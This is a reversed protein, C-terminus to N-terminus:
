DGLRKWSGRVHFGRLCIGDFGYGAAVAPHGIEGVLAVMQERNGARQGGPKGPRHVQSGLARGHQVLALQPTASGIGQGVGMEEVLQRLRTALVPITGMGVMTRLPLSESPFALPDPFSAKSIESM